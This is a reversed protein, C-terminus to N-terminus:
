AALRKALQSILWTSSAHAYLTGDEGELRAEATAVRNGPHVVAGEARLVGVGLTVPHVFSTKLEITV